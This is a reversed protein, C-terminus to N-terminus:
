PMDAGDSMSATSKRDAGPGFRPTVFVYRTDVFEPSFAEIEIQEKRHSPHCSCPKSLVVRAILYSTGCPRWMRAHLYGLLNLVYQRLILAAPSLDSLISAKPGYQSKPDRVCCLVAPQERERIASHRYKSGTSEGHMERSRRGGVSCQTDGVRVTIKLDRKFLAKQNMLVVVKGVIRWRPRM